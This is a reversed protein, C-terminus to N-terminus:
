ANKLNNVTNAGLILSMAKYKFFMFFKKKASAMISSHNIKQIFYTLKTDIKLRFM